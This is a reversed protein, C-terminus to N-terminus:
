ILYINKSIKLHDTTIEYDENDEQTHAPEEEMMVRRHLAKIRAILAIPSFPKTVYEDAGIGLGLVQDSESGRATLM